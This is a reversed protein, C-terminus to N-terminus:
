RFVLLHVTGECLFSLFREVHFLHVALHKVSTGKRRPNPEAVDRHQMKDDDVKEQHTSALSEATCTRTMILRTVVRATGISDFAPRKVRSVRM